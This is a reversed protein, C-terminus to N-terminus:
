STEKESWDTTGIAANGINMTDKTFHHQQSANESRCIDDCDRGGSGRRGLWLEKSNDAPSHIM